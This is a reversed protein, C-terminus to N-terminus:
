DISNDQYPFDFLPTKNDLISFEIYYCTYAQHRCALIDKDCRLDDYIYPM